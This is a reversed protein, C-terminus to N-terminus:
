RTHYRIRYRTRFISLMKTFTTLLVWYITDSITGSVPISIMGSIMGSIVGLACSITVFSGSIMCSIPNWYIPVGEKVPAIDHNQIRYRSLIGLIPGSIESKGKRSPRSIPFDGIDNSNDRKLTSDPGMPSQRDNVWQYPRGKKRTMMIPPKWSRSSCSHLVDLPEHTRSGYLLTFPPQRRTTAMSHFIDNIGHGMPRRWENFVDGFVFSSQKFKSRTSPCISVASFCSLTKAKREKAWNFQSKLLLNSEFYEQRYHASRIQVTWLFTQGPAGCWCSRIWPHHHSQWGLVFRPCAQCPVM